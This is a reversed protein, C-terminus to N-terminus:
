FMNIFAAKRICILQRRTRRSNKCASIFSLNETPLWNGSDFRARDILEGTDKGTATEVVRMEAKPPASQALTSVTFALLLLFALFKSAFFSRIKYM